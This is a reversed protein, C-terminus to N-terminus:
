PRAGRLRWLPSATLQIKDLEPAGSKSEWGTPDKSIWWCDMRRLRVMAAITVRTQVMFGDGAAGGKWAVLGNASV